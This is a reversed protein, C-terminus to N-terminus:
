TPNQVITQQSDAGRQHASACVWMQSFLAQSQSCVVFVSFVDGNFPRYGETACRWVVFVCHHLSAANPFYHMITSLSMRTWSTCVGIEMLSFHRPFIQKRAM